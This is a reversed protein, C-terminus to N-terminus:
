HNASAELVDVAKWAHLGPLLARCRDCDELVTTLRHKKACERIDSRFQTLADLLNAPSANSLDSDGDLDVNSCVQTCM